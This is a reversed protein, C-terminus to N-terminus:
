AGSDRSDFLEGQAQREDRALEIRRLASVYEQPLGHHRAGALLLGLYRRSPKRGPRGRHSHYTFAPLRAGEPEPLELEIPLRVYAGFQIGETRDLFAADKFGLRYAVGWVHAGPRRRVNAVGREGKGVPLDFTLQFGALRAVCTEFPRMRRRGLFTRPDMNSGYGFYWVTHAM